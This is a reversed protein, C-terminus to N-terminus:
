RRNLILKRMYHQGDVQVNVLYMGSVQESLNFNIRQSALYSKKLIQKGSIDTVLVEIDGTVQADFELTVLGKSPNPFLNLNLENLSIENTGVMFGDVCINFTDSVSVGSPDSATIVVSICGTDAISPTAYLTDNMIELWAPLTSNEELAIEILLSDGDYDVFVSDNFPIKIVQGANVEQDAIANMVMPAQNTYNVTLMFSQTTIGGESDEVSVTITDSGMANPALTLQLEGVSAPSTYNVAIGSVVDSNLGSATVAISQEACDAGYSIGTLPITLESPHGTTDVNAIMDLTPSLNEAFVTVFFSFELSDGQTDTLLWKEETTGVPFAGDPGLGSIQTFESCLNNTALEPYSISITTDCVGAGVMVEIDDIENVVLPFTDIVNILRSCSGKNGAEDVAFVQVIIQHGLENCNFEKPYPIAYISLDEQATANDWTGKSLAIVDDDSLPYEGNEDLYITIPNCKINPVSNDEVSVIATCSDVNGSVDSVYLTVLNDGVDASYYMYNDLWMSDISCNDSSGGDIQAATISANGGQDLNVAINKCVAMPKITDEVTITAVCSDISGSADSVFLTVNNTGLESCNFDYKDLWMSDISCNDTSGNDVETASITAQGYSDLFVSLDQCVSQPNVTDITIVTFKCSDINGAADSAFITVNISDSFLTGPTPSQTVVPNPDCLDSVTVLSTFDDLKGQCNEDSYVMQTGPCLITPPQNDDVVVIASITDQCGFITDTVTLLVKYTGYQTYTHIPNQATSTNGDGFDWFWTDPLISQDTFFVTHPISCGTSPALTFKAKPPHITIFDQKVISDICGNTNGVILKVSYTGPTEYKHVPNQLAETPSGDGFDWLWTTGGNSNDTFSIISNVCGKDIDSIFDANVGDLSINFTCSTSKAGSFATITVLTDNLGLPTGAAPVQRLSDIGCPHWATALSRYDGLIFECNNDISVVQDSPCTLAINLNEEILVTVECYDSNGSADNASLQVINTGLDDCTFVSDSLTYTVPGCAETAPSALLDTAYVTATGSSDLEVVLGNICIPAPPITDLVTVTANCTSTNGVADFVTLVVTRDGISDCTFDTASAALSDAGCADLVNLSIDSPVISANGTNDLYISIDKCLAPVTVNGSVRINDFVLEESGGDQEVMIRIKMVDGSGTFNFDFDSVSGNPVVDGYPGGGGLTDPDNDLDVRLDGGFEDDGEFLGFTNWGAGDINYQLYINDTKEWRTGNSNSTGMSISVAFSSNGTITMPAFEIIGPTIGNSGSMVDESAWFYSGDIGTVSEAHGTPQTNTRFFFEPSPSDNFTNSVYTIGEGDTEFSEAFPICVEDNIVDMINITRSLTNSDDTGDNVTFCIERASNSPNTTNTNQYAVSRLISQYSSLSATGTFTLIGTSPDFIGGIGAIPSFSLVDESTNFGSCISVVASDLETDDIDSVTITNSVQLPGDGETFLLNESEISALVPAYNSPPTSSGQVVIQDFAFEESGDLGCLRVRVRLNTGIGPVNFTFNTFTAPIDSAGPDAVGDLNIDQRLFGGFEGDGVFQGITTYSGGDWSTQIKISDGWEWHTGTRGTAMYLSVTISSYGSANLPNLTLTSFTANPNATSEIDEAVWFWSGQVNLLVGGFSGCSTFPGNDNTRLFYDSSTCDSFTTSTYRSGEGDTEFGETLLTTQSFAQVFSLLMIASLLLFHKM